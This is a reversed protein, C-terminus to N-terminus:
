FDCRVNIAPHFGGLAPEFRVSHVVIRSGLTLARLLRLRGGLSWEFRSRGLFPFSELPGRFRQGEEPVDILVHRVDDSPLLKTGLPPVRVTRSRVGEILGTGPLGALDNIEESPQVNM